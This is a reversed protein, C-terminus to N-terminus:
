EEFSISNLIKVMLDYAEEANDGSTIIHIDYKGSRSDSDDFNIVTLRKDTIEAYMSTISACVGDREYLYRDTDYTGAVSKMVFVSLLLRAKTGNFISIDDITYSSCLKMWDFYTEPYVGFYREYEKQKKELFEEPVEVDGSEAILNYLDYTFGDSYVDDFQFSILEENDNKYSLASNEDADKNEEEGTDENVGVNIDKDEDDESLVFEKPIHVKAGNNEVSYFEGDAFSTDFDEIYEAVWNMQYGDFAVTYLGKYFLGEYMFVLFCSLAVSMVASLLRISAYGKNEKVNETMPTFYTYAKKVFIYKKYVIFFTIVLVCLVLLAVSVVAQRLALVLESSFLINYPNDFDIDTNNDSIIGLIIFSAFTLVASLGISAYGCLEKTTDKIKLKPLIVPIVVLIASAILLALVPITIIGKVFTTIGLLLFAVCCSASAFNMFSQKPPINKALVKRGFRVGEWALTTPLVIGLVVIEPVFSVNFLNLIVTFFYIFLLLCFFLGAFANAAKILVDFKKTAFKLFYAFRNINNAKAVEELEGKRVYVGNFFEPVSVGLFASVREIEPLSLVSKQALLNDFRKKSIGTMKCFDKQDVGKDLLLKNLDFM